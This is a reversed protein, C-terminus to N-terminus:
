RSFGGAEEAHPDCGLRAAERDAAREDLCVDGPRADVAVPAHQEVHGVLVERGRAEVRAHAEGGVADAARQGRGALVDLLQEPSECMLWEEETM